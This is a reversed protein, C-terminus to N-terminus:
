NSSDNEPDPIACNGVGALISALGTVGAGILFGTEVEAAVLLCRFFFLGWGGGCFLFATGAGCAIWFFVKKLNKRTNLKLM